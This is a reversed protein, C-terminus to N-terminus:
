GDRFKSGSGDFRLHKQYKQMGQWFRNITHQCQLAAHVLAIHDARPYNYLDLAHVQRLAQELSELQTILEQYTNSAQGSSKLADIIDGVLNIGAFFDGLSFGFGVSM